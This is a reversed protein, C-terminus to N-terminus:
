GLDDRATESRDGTM